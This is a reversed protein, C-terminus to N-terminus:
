VSSLPLVSTSLSKPKATPSGPQALHEVSAWRGSLGRCIDWSIGQPQHENQRMTGPNSSSLITSCKRYNDDKVGWSSGGEVHHHAYLSGEQLSVKRQLRLQRKQHWVLRGVWELLLQISVLKGEENLPFVTWSGLTKRSEVKPNGSGAPDKDGMM